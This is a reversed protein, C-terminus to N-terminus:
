QGNGFLKNRYYRGNINDNYSDKELVGRCFQEKTEFYTLHSKSEAFYLITRKISDGNKIDENLEKCSGTYTLWDSEKVILKFKSVRKDPLAALEKKGLRKKRRWHLQKKGIYIKGNNLNKIQYIFGYWDKYKGLDEICTIDKKSGQLDWSNLM